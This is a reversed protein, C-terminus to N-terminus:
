DQITERARPPDSTANRQVERNPRGGSGVAIEIYGDKASILRPQPLM